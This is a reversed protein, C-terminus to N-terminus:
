CARPKTMTLRNTSLDLERCAAQTSEQIDATLIVIPSQFGLEKLHKLVGLGDINPMVLDLTVFDLDEGPLKELAEKGDVCEIFSADPFIRKLCWKLRNRSFESDDVIGIQM